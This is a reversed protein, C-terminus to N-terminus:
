DYLLNFVIVLLNYFFFFQKKLSYYLNLHFITTTITLINILYSVVQLRLTSNHFLAYHLSLGLHSSTAEGSSCFILLYFFFLTAWIYLRVVFRCSSLKMRVRSQVNSNEFFRSLTKLRREREGTNSDFILKNEM